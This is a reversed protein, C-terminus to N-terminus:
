LFTSLFLTSPLRHIYLYGVGSIPQYCGSSSSCASIWIQTCSAWLCWVSCRRGGEHSANVVANNSCCGEESRGGRTFSVTSPVGAPCAQTRGIFSFQSPIVGLHTRDGRAAQRQLDSYLLILSWCVLISAPLRAVLTQDKFSLYLATRQSDCACHPM